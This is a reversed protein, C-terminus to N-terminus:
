QHLQGIVQETAVDLAAFLTTTGYQTNWAIGTLSEVPLRDDM